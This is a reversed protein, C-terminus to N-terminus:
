DLVSKVNQTMLDDLYMLRVSGLGCVYDTVQKQTMLPEVVYRQGPYDHRLHEPVKVEHLPIVGREPISTSATLRPHTIGQRMHIETKAGVAVPYAFRVGNRTNGPVCVLQYPKRLGGIPSNSM